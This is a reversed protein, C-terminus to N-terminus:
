GHFRIKKKKKWNTCKKYQFLTTNYRIELQTEIVDVFHSYLYLVLKAKLTQKSM